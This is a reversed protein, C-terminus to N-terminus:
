QFDRINFVVRTGLKRKVVALRDQLPDAKRLVARETEATKIGPDDVAAHGVDAVRDYFCFASDVFLSQQQRRLRGQERGPSVPVKANNSFDGQASAFDDTGGCAPVPIAHSTASQWSCNPIPGTESDM